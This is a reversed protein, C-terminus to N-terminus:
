RRPDASWLKASGCLICFLLGILYGILPAMLVIVLTPMVWRAILATFIGTLLAVILIPPFLSWFLLRGHLAALFATLLAALAGFALGALLSEGVGPPYLGNDRATIIWFQLLMGLFAGTGFGAKACSSKTM